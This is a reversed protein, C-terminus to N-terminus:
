IGYLKVLLYVPNTQNDLRILCCEDKFVTVVAFTVDFELRQKATHYDLAQVTDPASFTFRFAFEVTDMHLIPNFDTIVTLMTITAM